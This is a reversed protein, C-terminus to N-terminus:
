EIGRDAADRADAREAEPSNYTFANSIFPNDSPLGTQPFDTNLWYELELFNMKLFVSEPPSESSNRGQSKYFSPMPQGGNYDVEISSIVAPKMKFLYRSNPIIGVSFVNPFKFLAPTNGIFAPTNQPLIRGLLGSVTQYVSPHMGHQIGTIIRQIIESEPFNKPSLKWTMQFTQFDPVNVTVSKFNNIALGLGQGGRGVIGSTVAASAPPFLSLYNFDTNYNVEHQRTLQMPLPLKYQRISSINRTNYSLEGEVIYTHYKAQDTPFSLSEFRTNRAISAEIAATPNQRGIINRPSFNNRGYTSDFQTPQTPSNSQGVRVSPPLAM